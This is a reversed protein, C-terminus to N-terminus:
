RKKNMDKNEARRQLYESVIDDAKKQRGEAIATVVRRWFSLRTGDKGAVIPGTWLSQITMHAEGAFTNHIGGGVAPSSMRTHLLECIAVSGDPGGMWHSVGSCALADTTRPRYLYSFAM